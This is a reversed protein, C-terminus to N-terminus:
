HYDEKIQIIESTVLQVRQNFKDNITIWTLSENNSDVELVEGSYVKGHQTRIFVRKGEWEKWEMNINSYNLKYINNTVQFNGCKITTNTTPM